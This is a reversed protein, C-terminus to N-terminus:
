FLVWVFGFYSLLLCVQQLFYIATTYIAPVCTIHILQNIKNNHYAGYFAFQEQLRESM